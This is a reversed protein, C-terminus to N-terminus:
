DSVIRLFTVFIHNIDEISYRHDCPLCLLNESTFKSVECMEKLQDNIPWIVPAYIDEDALSKQIEDRNNVYIPFYLPSQVEESIKLNKTFESQSFLKSLHLFNRRRKSMIKKINISEIIKLSADNILSISSDNDLLKTAENLLYRYQTKVEIKRESLYESKLLLARNRLQFFEDDYKNINIVKSSILIGGDPLSFWKRISIVKYDFIFNRQFYFDHTADFIFIKSPYKEKLLRLQKNTIFQIGFFNHFIFLDCENIKRNLEDFDAKYHTNLSYYDINISSEKFPQVMSECFVSPFLVKKNKHIQAIYRLADRGSRFFVSRYKKDFRYPKAQKVLYEENSESDFESGYENRKRLEKGDKFLNKRILIVLFTKFLIKIDFRFSINKYYYLDNVMKETGDTSNRFYAQNYGTIGPKCLLFERFEDPYRELWDIPDPRPGIFSMNGILVNIIQPFEDVSSKRLFSGIRTVRKDNPSNFTSGDALRIDEAGVKMSRFKIMNFNKGNKGIRKSIFFVPGGDDIKILIFVIITSLVLIPILIFAFLFDFLPKLLRRYM